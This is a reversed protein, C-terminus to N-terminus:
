GDKIDKILSNFKLIEETAWKSYGKMAVDSKEILKRLRVGNRYTYVAALFLLLVVGGQIMTMAIIIAPM